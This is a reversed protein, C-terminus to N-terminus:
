SQNLSAVILTVIEAADAVIIQNRSVPRAALIDQTANFFLFYVRPVFREIYKPLDSDGANYKIFITSYLTKLLAHAYGIADEVTQQDQYDTGMLLEVKTFLRILLISFLDPHVCLGGLCTLAHVCRVYADDDKDKSPAHDPLLAFFSPLTTDEIIRPSSNSIFQLLALLEITLDDEATPANLLADSLNQVVYILEESSLIDLQVLRHLCLLSAEATTGSQLGSIFRSLLSDKFDRLPTTSSVSNGSHNSSPNFQIMADLVASFVALVGQRTSPEKDYSSTM